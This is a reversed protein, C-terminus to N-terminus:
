IGMGDISNARSQFNFIVFREHDWVDIRTSSTVFQRKSRHHDIGTFAYRSAYSSKPESSSTNWMKVTKDQGVTVFDQTFPVCAIGRVFGEHAKTSWVTSKCAVDWVRLEGDGSGSIITSISTPHKALSYVGDIHGPLAYLFPKAFLRELKVANLARTYERARSFPHIEPNLNRQTIPIDGQRLQLGTIDESRSIAKLKM